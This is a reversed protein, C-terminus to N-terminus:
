SCSQKSRGSKSVLYRVSSKLKQKAAQGQKQRKELRKKLALESLFEESAMCVKQFEWAEQMVLLNTVSSESKSVWGNGEHYSWQPELNAIASCPGTQKGLTWPRM